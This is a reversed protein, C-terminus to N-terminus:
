AAEVAVDPIVFTGSLSTRGHLRHVFALVKAVANFLTVPIEEDLKCAGYLARALPPAEVVPVAHEQARDRIRMAVKDAGKAVVRPAGMGPEYRLAVAFHRPNVVVVNADAVAALMRNRSAARQLARIKGKILPDGETNRMEQKIESKTMMMQKTTQRRQYAYDAFALFLALGAVTRVLAITRDALSPIVAGLVLVQGGSLETAVRWVTPVAVGGIILVKGLAKGTEWLSRMSFMRKFGAIPNLRKAKPALPKGSFVFGVQALTAVLGVVASFALFPLIAVMASSLANGLVAAARTPDPDLAVDTIRRQTAQLSDFLRAGMSPILLTAGLIILWGAIDPSKAIQGQRRAEKKRRPTPKETKQDKDAQDAM